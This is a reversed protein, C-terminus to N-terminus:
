NNNKVIYDRMNEILIRDSGILYNGSNLAILHNMKRTEIKDLIRRNMEFTRSDSMVLINKNNLPFIIQIRPTEFGIDRVKDPHFLFFPTDSTIFNSGRSELVSWEKRWLMQDILLADIAMKYIIQERSPEIYIEDNIVADLIQELLQEEIDEGYIEQYIKRIKDKSSLNKNIQIKTYKKEFDVIKERYLPTRTYILSMFMSLEAIEQFTIEKNNKIKEIILCALNESDALIDEILDPNELNLDEIISDGYGEIILSLAKKKNEAKKRSCKKYKSFDVRYFYKIHFTGNKGQSDIKDKVKDLVFVEENDNLFGKIYSQPIYHHKKKTM